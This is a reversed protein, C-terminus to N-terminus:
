FLWNLIRTIWGPSEAEQVVGSGKLSIEADAVQYSYITNAIGIDKSRVIGYITIEQIENNVEVKHRGEVRLNGNDMVETVVAAVKAQVNSTRETQGSGTYKNMLQGSAQNNQGIVPTLREITHTFKVGLDDKVNTDTGAKHKATSTELIIVTIIDGVKFSKDPSYPSSSTNKYISDALSPTFGLCFFLSYLIVLHSIRVFINGDRMERNGDGFVKIM